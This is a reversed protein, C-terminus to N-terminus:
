MGDAIQTAFLSSAGARALHWRTAPTANRHVIGRSLVPAVAEWMGAM